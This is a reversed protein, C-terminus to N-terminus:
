GSPYDVVRKSMRYNKMKVGRVEVVQEYDVTFHQQKFFPQATISVDAYLIAISSGAAFMEITKLLQTAIGQRQYDKHVFLLDLYGDQAISSFGILEDENLAVLFFQEEVRSLWRNKNSYGARWAAVQNADYHAQNVATITEYFLQTISDIDASDAQRIMM